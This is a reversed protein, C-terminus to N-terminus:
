RWSNAFGGSNRKKAAKKPDALPHIPEDVTKQVMKGAVNAYFKNYVSDMNVNIIALAAIAYV